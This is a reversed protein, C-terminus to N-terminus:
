GNGILPFMVTVLDDPFTYEDVSQTDEHSDDDDDDDDDDDSKAFSPPPPPPPPFLWETTPTVLYSAVVECSDKMGGGAVQVVHTAIDRMYRKLADVVLQDCTKLDADLRDNAQRFEAHTMWEFPSRKRHHMNRVRIREESAIANSARLFLPECGPQDLIYKLVGTYGRAYAMDVVTRDSIAVVPTVMNFVHPVCRAYAMAATDHFPEKVASQLRMYEILMQSVPMSRTGDRFVSIFDPRHINSTSQDLVAYPYVEDDVGGKVMLDFLRQGFGEPIATTPLMGLRIWLDMWRHGDGSALQTLVTCDPVFGEAEMSTVLAILECRKRPPKQLSGLMASYLLQSRTDRATKNEDAQAADYKAKKASPEPAPVAERSQRKEGSHPLAPISSSSSSASM